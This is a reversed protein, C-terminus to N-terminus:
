EDEALLEEELDVAADLRGQVADLLRQRADNDIFLKHPLRHTLKFTGTLARVDYTPDKRGELALIPELPDALILREDKVRCLFQLTRLGANDLPPKGTEERLRGLEGSFEKTFNALARLHYLENNMAELESKETSPNTASLDVGVARALYDVRTLFDGEGSKELISELLGTITAHGLVTRRYLDTGAGAEADDPVNYLNYGAQIAAAQEAELREKEMKAMSALSPQNALQEEIWLLAAHRETPDPFDNLAQRFAAPNGMSAKAKALLKALREAMQHQMQAMEETPPVVVEVKKQKEPKRRDAVDKEVTESAAFTMEEAADALLSSFDQSVSVQMGNWNGHAQVAQAVSQQHQIPQQDPRGIGSINSSM